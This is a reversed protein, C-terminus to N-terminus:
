VAAPKFRRWFFVCLPLFALTIIFEPIWQTLDGISDRKKVIFLGGFIWPCALLNYAAHLFIGPWLSDYRLYVLALIFGIPAAFVAREWHFAGFVISSLIVAPWVGWRNAWLNLLYGRFILEEGVPAIAVAGAWFALYKLEFPALTDGYALTQFLEPRFLLVALCLVKYLGYGWGLMALYSVLLDGKSPRAAPGAFLVPLSRRFEPVVVTFALIISAGIASVAMDRIAMRNDGSIREAIKYSGVISIAWSITALFLVHWATVAGHVLTSKPSWSNADSQAM